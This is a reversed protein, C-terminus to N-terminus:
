VQGVLDFFHRRRELYSAIWKKLLHPFNLRNRKYLLRSHSVGDFTKSLDWFVADAECSKDLVSFISHVISVLETTISLGMCFGHQFPPLVNDSNFFDQLYKSINHEMLKSCSNPLSIPRYNNVTDRDGGKSVLVTRAICWKVPSCRWLLVSM